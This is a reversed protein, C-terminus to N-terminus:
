TIDFLLVVRRSYIVKEPICSAMLQCHMHLKKKHAHKRTDHYTFNAQQLSSTEFPIGQQAHYMRYLIQSMSNYAHHVWELDV